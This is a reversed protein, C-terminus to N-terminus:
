YRMKYSKRLALSQPRVRDIWSLTSVIVIVLLAVYIHILYRFCRHIFDVPVLIAFGRGPLLLCSLFTCFSFGQCTYRSPLSFTFYLFSVPGPDRFRTRSTFSLLSLYTFLFAKACIARRCRFTLAPFTFHLFLLTCSLVYM